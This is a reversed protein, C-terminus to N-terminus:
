CRQLRDKGARASRLQIQGFTNEYAHTTPCITTSKTAYAYSFLIRVVGLVNKKSLETTRAPSAKSLSGYSPDYHIKM